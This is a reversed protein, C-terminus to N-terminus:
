KPDKYLEDIIRDWLDSLRGYNAVLGRGFSMFFPDYQNLVLASPNGSWDGWLVLRRQTHHYWDEVFQPPLSNLLHNLLLISKNREIPSGSRNTAEAIAQNRSTVLRRRFDSWFDLSKQIAPLLLQDSGKPWTLLKLRSHINKARLSIEVDALNVSGSRHAAQELKHFKARLEKGNYAQPVFPKGINSEYWTLVQQLKEDGVQARLLKIQKADTDLKTRPVYRTKTHVLNRLRKAILRDAETPENPKKPLDFLAM